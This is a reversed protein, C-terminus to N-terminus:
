KLLTMDDVFFDYTIGRTVLFEFYLAKALDPAMFAQGFGDQRLESWLVTFRQWETTLTVDKGFHDNCRTGCLTGEPSTQLDILNLRIATPAAARAFFRLGRYGTVAYPVARDVTRVFPAQCVAGWSRHPGGRFRLALKSGCRPMPPAEFSMVPMGVTDDGYVVWRDGTRGGLKALAGMPDEFSVLAEEAPDPACAAPGGDVVVDPSPAGLDAPATAVDVAQVDRGTADAAADPSSALLADRVVLGDAVPSVDVAPSTDLAPSMDFRAPQGPAVDIPADRAVSDLRPATADAPVPGADQVGNSPPVAPPGADPSPAVVLSRDAARPACAVLFTVCMVVALSTVCMVVALSSSKM